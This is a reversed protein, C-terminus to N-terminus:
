MQNESLIRIWGPDPEMRHRSTFSDEAEQQSLIPNYSVFLLLDPQHFARIKMLVGFM